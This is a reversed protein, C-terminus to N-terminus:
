SFAHPFAKTVARRAKRYGKDNLILSLETVLGQPDWGRDYTEAERMWLAERIWNVGYDDLLGRAKEREQEQWVWSLAALVSEEADKVSPEWDQPFPAGAALLRRAALVKQESRLHKRARELETM